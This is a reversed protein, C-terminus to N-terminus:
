PKADEEWSWAKDPKAEELAAIRQRAATLNQAGLKMAVDREQALRDREAELEAVRDRKLVYDEWMRTNAAELAAIRGKGHEEFTESVDLKARLDDREAELAAIRERLCMVDDEDLGGVRSPTGAFRRVADEPREGAYFEPENM